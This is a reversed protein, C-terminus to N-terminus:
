YSRISKVVGLRAVARQLTTDNEIHVVCLLNQETAWHAAASFMQENSLEQAGYDNYLNTNDPWQDFVVLAHSHHLVNTRSAIGPTAYFGRSLLHTDDKWVAAAIHPRAAIGVMVVTCLTEEPRALQQIGKRAANRVFYTEVHRLSTILQADPPKNKALPAVQLRKDVILRAPVEAITEVVMLGTEGMGNRELQTLVQEYWTDVSVGMPANLHAHGADFIDWGFFFPTVLEAHPAHVLSTAGPFAPTWCPIGELIACEGIQEVAEDSPAGIAGAGLGFRIAADPLALTHIYGPASPLSPQWKANSQLVDSVDGVLSLTTGEFPQKTTVVLTDEPRQMSM